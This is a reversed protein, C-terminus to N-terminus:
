SIGSVFEIFQYFPVGNVQYILCIPSSHKRCRVTRHLASQNHINGAPEPMLFPMQHPSVNVAPPNSRFSFGHPKIGYEGSHRFIGNQEAINGILSRVTDIDNVLFGIFQKVGAFCAPPEAPTPIAYPLFAVRGQISLAFWTFEARQPAMRRITGGMTHIVM